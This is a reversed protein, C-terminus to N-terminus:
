GEPVTPIRTWCDGPAVGFEYKHVLHYDGAPNGWLTSAAALIAAFTLAIRYWRKSNMEIRERSGLFYVDVVENKM